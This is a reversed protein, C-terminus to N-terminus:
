LLRPRNKSSLFIRKSQAQKLRSKLMWELLSFSVSESETWRRQNTRIALFDNPLEDGDVSLPMASGDVSPHRLTLRPLQRFNVPCWETSGHVCEVAVHVWHESFLVNWVHGCLHFIRAFYDLLPEESHLSKQHLRQFAHVANSSRASLNLLLIPFISVSWFRLRTRWAHFISHFHHFHCSTCEKLM